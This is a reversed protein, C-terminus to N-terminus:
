GCRREAEFMDFLLGDLKLQPFTKQWNELKLRNTGAFWEELKGSIQPPPPGDCHSLINVTERERSDDGKLRNTYIALNILRRIDELFAGGPFQSVGEFDIPPIM